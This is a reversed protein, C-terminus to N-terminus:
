FNKAYKSFMSTLTSKLKEVKNPLLEQSKEDMYLSRRTEIQLAQAGWGYAAQTLHGGFYPDNVQPKYGDSELYNQAFRRRTLSTSKGGLDSLCFEPRQKSQSPNKQLHYDTPKSPMSHLDIFDPIESLQEQIFDYYPQYFDARWQDIQAASPQKTVLVQGQTNKSWNLVALEPSRNMDVCIRHLGCVIVSVHKQQLESIDILEDVKFDLDCDQAHKDDTLFEQFSDPIWMGAHPVSILLRAQPAPYFRFVEEEM